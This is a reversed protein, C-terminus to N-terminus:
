RLRYLSLVAAWGSPLIAPPRELERGYRLTLELFYYAHFAAEVIPATEELWRKNHEMAFTKGTGRAVIAEFWSDLGRDTALSRLTEAIKETLDQLWYVKFSQHYFRYVHDELGWQDECEALLQELVPLEAKIAALLGISEPRDDFDPFRRRTKKVRTKKSKGGMAATHPQPRVRVSRRFTIVSHM